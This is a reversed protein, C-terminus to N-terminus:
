NLSPELLLRPGTWPRVTRLTGNPEFELAHVTGCGPCPVQVRAIPRGALAVENGECKVTVSVAEGCVRCAFDLVVQLEMM